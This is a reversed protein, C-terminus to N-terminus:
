ISLLKVCGHNNDGQVLSLLVSPIFRTAIELLDCNIKTYPLNVVCIHFRMYMLRVKILDKAGLLIIFVFKFLM